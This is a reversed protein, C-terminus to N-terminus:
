AKHQPPRKPVVTEQQAHLILHAQIGERRFAKALEARVGAKWNWADSPSHTWAALWCVIGEKNMEMVWLEPKEKSSKYPNEEAIEVAMAEVAELDVEYSLRLEIYAWLYTGRFSYNLVEKSLLRSNPIIYRRWDWLKLTTHTLSIDEITGYYGDVSVTDGVLFHRSFSMVMGSILNEVFPKAAIGLVVTTSAALLSIVTAPLSGLFPFFMAVLMVLILLLSLSKRIISFRLQIGDQLRDKLQQFPMRSPSPMWLSNSQSMNDVRELRQAELRVLTRRVVYTLIAGLLLIGGIYLYHRYFYLKLIAGSTTPGPMLHEFM